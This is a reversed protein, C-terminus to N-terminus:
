SQPGRPRPKKAAAFIGKKESAIERALLPLSFLLQRLSLFFAFSLAAFAAPRANSIVPMVGLIFLCVFVLSIGTKAGARVDEPSM